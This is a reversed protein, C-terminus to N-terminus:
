TSILLRTRQWWLNLDRDKGFVATLHFLETPPIRRQQMYQELENLYFEATDLEPHFKPPPVHALSSFHPTSTDYSNQTTTPPHINNNNPTEDHGYNKQPPRIDITPTTQCEQPPQPRICHSSVSVFNTNITTENDMFPPSSQPLPSISALKAQVAKTLAEVFPRTLHVGTTFDEIYTDFEAIQHFEEVPKSFDLAYKEIHKELEQKTASHTGELASIQNIFSEL